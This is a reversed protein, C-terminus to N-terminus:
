TVAQDTTAISTPQASAGRREATCVRRLKVAARTELEATIMQLESAIHCSLMLRVTANLIPRERSREVYM